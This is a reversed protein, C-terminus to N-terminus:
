RVGTCELICIAFVFLVPCNVEFTALAAVYEEFLANARARFESPLFFFVYLEIYFEVWLDIFMM